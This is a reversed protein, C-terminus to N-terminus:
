KECRGQIERHQKSKHKQILNFSKALYNGTLIIEAPVGRLFFFFRILCLFIYGCVIHIQEFTLQNKLHNLVMLNHLPLYADNSSRIKM